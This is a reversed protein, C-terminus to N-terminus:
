LASRRESCPLVDAIDKDELVSSPQDAGCDVMGVTLYQGEAHNRGDRAGLERLLDTVEAMVGIVFQYNCAVRLPQGAHRPCGRPWVFGQDERTAVDGIKRRRAKLQPGLQPDNEHIAHLTQFREKSAAGRIHQPYVLPWGISTFPGTRMEMQMQRGNHTPRANHPM